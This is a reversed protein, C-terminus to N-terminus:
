PSFTKETSKTSQIYNFKFLYIFSMVSMSRQYPTWYINELDFKDIKIGQINVMQKKATQVLRKKNWLYIIQYIFHWFIEIWVKMFISSSESSKKTNNLFIDVWLSSACSSHFPVISILNPFVLVKESSDNNDGRWRLQSPIYLLLAVTRGEKRGETRGYGGQSCELILM